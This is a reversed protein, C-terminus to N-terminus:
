ISSGSWVPTDNTIPESGKLSYNKGKYLSAAGTTPITTTLSANNPWKKNSSVHSRLGIQMSKIADVALAIVGEEELVDLLAAGFM